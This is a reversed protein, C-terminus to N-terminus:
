STLPVRANVPVGLTFPTSVPSVPPYTYTTVEEESGGTGTTLRRRTRYDLGYAGFVPGFYFTSVTQYPDTIRTMDLALTNTPDDDTPLYEYQWTGGVINRGSTTKSTVVTSFVKCLNQSDATCPDNPSTGADRTFEHQDYTFDVIGGWPTTIQTLNGQVYAYRWSSITGAPPVAEVLNVVCCSLDPDYLYTWTRNTNGEAYSLSKPRKYAPNTSVPREYAVSIQRSGGNTFSQIWTEVDTQDNYARTIRNGFPDTSDVLYALTSTPPPNAPLLYRNITGDPLYLTFYHPAAGSPIRDLLWFDQSLGYRPMNNGAVVIDENSWRWGLPHAGGALTFAVPIAALTGQPALTRGDVALVVDLPGVTWTRTKSNYIRGFRLSSGGNGPLELDVYNLILNGTYTDISEGAFGTSYGRHRQFGEADWVPDAGFTSGCILLLLSFLLVWLRTSM